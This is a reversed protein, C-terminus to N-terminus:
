KKSLWNKGRIGFRYNLSFLWADVKAAAVASKNNLDFNSFDNISQKPQDQIAVEVDSIDVNRSMYTFFASIGYPLPLDINQKEFGGRALPLFRQKSLETSTQVFCVHSTIMRILIGFTLKLGNQSRYKDKRM